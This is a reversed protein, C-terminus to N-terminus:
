AGRNPAMLRGMVRQQMLASHRAGSRAGPVPMIGLVPLGLGDALDSLGRVRRDLMELLLGAGVALLAGLFVALAINLGLRPFAAEIPPVAETLVYAGGQNAQSELSTQNFRAQLTEYTRTASEVDRFLVSGEDRVQKMRLVLARQAALANRVDSERQNNITATVRAGGSVRRTEADMRAQLEQMSARAEIVQPHNDGYRSGLEKMRAEARSVETKLQNIVPNSLVEQTRDALSGAAQTQRSRSEAAVAQLAVLQSSLENLRATEIDLREDTAIIGSKRQFDSLKAQAAELKERSEKLQTEFFGTYRKAPDVRLELNTEIYAQAFANALGAAFRPDPATYSLTVVNSEPSPMVELSEQFTEVLWQEVSGVGGTADQWQARVDANDTLKTNRVVKRAVRQSKMVDIQTTVVQPVARDPLLIGSLPDPRVDLLVTASAVYRPPLVLSVAITAAVTLVFVAVVVLWRARLISAFQILNM